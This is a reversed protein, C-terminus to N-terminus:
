IDTQCAVSRIKDITDTWLRLFNALRDLLDDSENPFVMFALRPQYVASCLFCRFINCFLQSRSTDLGFCIM